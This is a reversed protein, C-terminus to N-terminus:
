RRHYVREDLPETAEIALIAVQNDKQARQALVGRKDPQDQGAARGSATVAMTVPMPMPMAPTVTPAAAVAPSATPAAASATLGAPPTVWLEFEIAVTFGLAVLWDGWRDMRARIGM